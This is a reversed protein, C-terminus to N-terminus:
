SYYVEDKIVALAAHLELIVGGRGAFGCVLLDFGFEFIDLFHELLKVTQLLLLNECFSTQNVLQGNLYQSLAPLGYNLGEPGLKVGKLEDLTGLVLQGLELLLVPDADVSLGLIQGVNLLDRATSVDVISSCFICSRLTSM